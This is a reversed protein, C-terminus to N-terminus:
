NEQEQIEENNIEENSTNAMALEIDDPVKPLDESLCIAEGEVIWYNDEIRIGIKEEPIYIGPEITIVDNPQLPQSYDGVDHVDLGLFHGIGHVFYNGYGYKDLFKHALHILSKEPYEKNSIWMGPQALQAIHEQTELVIMYLERQRKSFTGSVPFTRTLDACYYNYEAGIDVVVLEGNQLTANNQHYHLVTGNKGSAVISPFAISCGRVTFMYELLAQIEYEKKDASIARAVADHADITVDIAKYIYEIEQRSKTRRLRAVLPSIDILQSNFGSILQAIRQLIFRQEVYGSVTQPNLTYIPKKNKVCEDIIVLLNHYQEKTFFPHCQYGKCEQGLYMLEDFGFREKQEAFIASSAWKAREQAYNPVFLTTKKNELDIMLATAPEEIGTLYFFSREQKFVAHSEFSGFLLVIGNNADPYQKKILDVLQERRNKFFVTDHKEVIPM